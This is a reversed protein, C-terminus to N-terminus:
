ADPRHCGSWGTVPPSAGSIRVEEFEDMRDAPPEPGHEMFFRLTFKEPLVGPLVLQEGHKRLVRDVIQEGLSGLAM